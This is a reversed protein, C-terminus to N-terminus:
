SGLRRLGSALILDFLRLLESSQHQAAVYLRLQAIQEESYSGRPVSAILGANVVLLAAIAVAWPWRARRTALRPVRLRGLATTPAPHRAEEAKKLADLIFSM